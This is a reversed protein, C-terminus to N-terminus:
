HKTIQKSKVYWHYLKELRKDKKKNNRKHLMKTKCCDGDDDAAM